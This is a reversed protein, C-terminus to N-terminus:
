LSNPHPYPQIQSKYSSFATIKKNFVQSINIYMKGSLTDQNRWGSSTREYLAVLSPFSRRCGPRLATLVAECTIRHDLNHSPQPLLVEDFKGKDLIKDLSSVLELMPITELRMDKGKFLVTCERVGLHHSCAELESIRTSIEATNTLHRHKIGGCAMVVVSVESGQEAAIAMTGGCGIVEDDAHPAVVLLRKPWKLSNM